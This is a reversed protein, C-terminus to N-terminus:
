VLVLFCRKISIIRSRVHIICIQHRASTSSWCVIGLNQVLVFGDRRLRFINRKRDDVGVVKIDFNILIQAAQCSPKIADEAMSGKRSYPAYKSRRILFSPITSPEATVYIILCEYRGRRAM